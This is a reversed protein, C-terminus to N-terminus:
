TLSPQHDQPPTPEIIEPDQQSDLVVTPDEQGMDKDKNEESQKAAVKKKSAAEATEGREQERLKQRRIREDCAAMLEEQQKRMDLKIKEVRKTLDRLAELSALKKEKM